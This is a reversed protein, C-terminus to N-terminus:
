LPHTYPGPIPLNRRREMSSTINTGEGIIEFDGDVAKASDGSQPTTSEYDSFAERSVFMTDSAGLDIFTPIGARNFTQFGKSVLATTTTREFEDDDIIIGSCGPM